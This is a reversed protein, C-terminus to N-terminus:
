VRIEFAIATKGWPKSGVEVLSDNTTTVSEAFLLGLKRVVTDEATMLLGFTKRKGM